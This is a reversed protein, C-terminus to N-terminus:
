GVRVTKKILYPRVHAIGGGLSIARFLKDKHMGDWLSGALVTVNSKLYGLPFMPTSAGVLIIERAKECFGLLNDMSQNIFATGTISVVDCQPLLKSQETTPYVFSPAQKSQYLGQDFVVMARAKQGLLQEVAPIYGVMGLVDLPEMAVAFPTSEDLLTQSASAATLVAMGMSRMLEDTGYLAWTAVEQASKGVVTQGFSFVSCGNPLKDRLVYSVGVNGDSLAIGILSIGVVADDITKGVLYPQAAELVQELLM